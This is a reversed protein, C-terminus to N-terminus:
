GENYVFGKYKEINEMADLTNKVYMKIIDKLLYKKGNYMYNKNFINVIDLKYDKDFERNQNFYVFHDILVRFPEMLDCTLNFENYENKHHIGMQTLFGNNIIEKNITSLLVAYGYNLAANINSDDNRSFNKGFLENFYVKASHGERNTKDGPTIETVYSIILEYKKSHIKKLLNAQNIIKNEVIKAWLEDKITKKWEFQEKIKKSSNHRSYFSSLEGYPNHKEDCFIINIKNDSLEKLLYASISVSISDVIITDIESLHIYTEDSDHKVVLFRNKYNIKSQRTIVVTRFSM